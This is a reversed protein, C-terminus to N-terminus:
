KFINKLRNIIKRSLTKKAYKILDNHKFLGEGQAIRFDQKVWWSAINRELSVSEGAFPLITNLLFDKRILFPNNTWNAWRATTIFYEGKKQIKDPFASAPDLWHVSELLHPSTCEHWDDYYGLENGKHVLSFLPHGPHNRSRYRIIDFGEGLLDLGSQLRQLTTNRDEILEWDHELFLIKECAAKEALKAIAKGIGINENLGIISIKYKGAIKRDEDSVEQFLITIDEVMELLGNKHYSSLSNKLNKGSKWSLICISIPLKKMM